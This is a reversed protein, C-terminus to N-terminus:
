ILAQVAHGKVQPASVIGRTLHTERARSWRDVDGLLCVSWLAHLGNLPASFKVACKLPFGEWGRSAGESNLSIRAFAPVPDM